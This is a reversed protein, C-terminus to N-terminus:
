QNLLRFILSYFYNYVSKIFRLSWDSFKYVLRQLSLKYVIAIIMSAIFLTAVYICTWGLVYNYGFNIYIYQWIRPRIITRFLINEHIIYILMSLSSVYNIIKSKKNIKSFINLAGFALFINLFNNNKNWHLVKSSFFDIKLGVFNTISILMITGIFGICILSINIKKSLCFKQCYLKFYSIVFYICIWTSLYSDGPFTYIFAFFLYCVFLIIAISLHMKQDIREIIINLFPAIFCFLIYNTIYWNNQFFTPFISKIILKMGIDSPKYFILMAFLWIISIVFVDLLMKWIKNINTEKKEVLFWSSCVFFITNGLTGSYRLIILFFTQMSSTAQGLNVYYDNFGLISSFDSGITQTVHSIVILLIGIIKLLEIGSNRVNTKKVINENTESM